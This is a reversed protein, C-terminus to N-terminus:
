KLNAKVWGTVSQLAADLKASDRGGAQAMTPRGGGGGGMLKAADRVIYRDDNTGRLPVVLDVPCIHRVFIPPAAHWGTLVAPM